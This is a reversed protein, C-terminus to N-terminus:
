GDRMAEVPDIRAARMGPLAAAALTTATLLALVAVLVWPDDPEVRYLVLDLGTRIWLAFLLGTALGVAVVATVRRLVLGLVSGAEAGLAMRIGIERQRQAVSYAVLGYLGLLVMFLAVAGFALYYGGYLRYEGTVRRLVDDLTAVGYTPVGPAQATVAARLAEAGSAGPAIQILVQAYRLERRDFIGARNPAGAQAFPRYIGEPAGGGVGDMWLDPVTGVVRAPVFDGAPGPVDLLSGVAGAPLWRRAFSENVVVVPEAQPGDSAAFVRGETAAVGLMDFWAPDVFATPADISGDGEIDGGTRLRLPASRVATFPTVSAVAARRVRPDSELDTRLRAWFERRAELTPWGSEDMGLRADPLGVSGVVVGDVAWGDDLSALATVSRAMLGAVTLVGTAIALQVAVFGGRSWVGTRSTGGRSEDRLLTRPETRLASWAPLLGTVAVTAVALAAAFALAAGDIRVDWWFPVAGGHALQFTGPESGRGAFWAVGVSAFLCGLLVALGGLLLGETLLQRVVRGRGAGLSVRIAVERARRTGRAVMLSAVNLTALLLVFAAAVLLARVMQGFEEDVYEDTYRRLVARIGANTGPHAAALGASIRDFDARAEELGVGPALRGFVDLRGQGRTVEALDVRLPVWLEESLPFAFGPPMVGVVVHARGNLTVSRGVVDPAGGFRRKWLADGVVVVAAASAEADTRDLRRGLAAEVGLLDFAEPEIAAGVVREAGTGGVDGGSADALTVVAETYAALGTFSRQAQRWDALDHPVVPLSSAEGDTREFHVLQDSDEFPLGRLVTGQVISFASTALGIGLALALVVTAAFGPERRLSRVAIRWEMAGGGTVLRGWEELGLGLTQLATQILFWGRGWGSRSRRVFRWEAEFTEVMELGFRRRFRGPLTALLLRYGAVARSRREDSRM